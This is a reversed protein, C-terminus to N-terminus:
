LGDSAAWAIGQPSALMKERALPILSVVGFLTAIIELPEYGLVYRWEIQSLIVLLRDFM